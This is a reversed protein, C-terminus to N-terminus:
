RKRLHAAGPGSLSPGRLLGGWMFSGESCIAQATRGLLAFTTRPESGLPSPAYSGRVLRRQASGCLAGRGHPRPPVHTHVPRLGLPM